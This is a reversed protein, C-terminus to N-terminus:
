DLTIISSKNKTLMVIEPNPYKFHDWGSNQLSNIVQSRFIATQEDLKGMPHAKAKESGLELKDKYKNFDIGIVVFQQDDNLVYTMCPVQIIINGGEDKIDLLPIDANETFRQKEELAQFMGMVLPVMNEFYSEKNFTDYYFRGIIGNQIEFPLDKFSPSKVVGGGFLNDWGVTKKYEELWTNFIKLGEPSNKEAEILWNEQTLDM